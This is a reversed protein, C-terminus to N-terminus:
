RTPTAYLTCYLGYRAPMMGAELHHLLLRTSTQKRSAAAVCRDGGECFAERRQAIPQMPHLVSGRTRECM